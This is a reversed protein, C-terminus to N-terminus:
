ATRSCRRKTAAVTAIPTKSSSVKDNPVQGPESQPYLTSGIVWLRGHADFRMQIPKIVGDKESAFLNAAFGDAMEFSALEAAPDDPDADLASAGSMFSLIGFVSWFL